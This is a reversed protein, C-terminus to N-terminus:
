VSKSIEINSWVFAVVSRFYARKGVGVISAMSVM